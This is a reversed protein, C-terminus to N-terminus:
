SNVKLMENALHHAIRSITKADDPSIIKGHALDNFAIACIRIDRILADYTEHRSIRNPKKGGIELKDPYLDNFTLGLATLVSETSCGGFCHLLVSGDDIERISLGRSRDGYRHFETPCSAIWSGPKSPKVRELRALLRELPRNPATQTQQVKSKSM